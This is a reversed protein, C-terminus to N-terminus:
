RMVAKNIYSGSGIKEMLENYTPEILTSGDQFIITPVTANGHNLEM